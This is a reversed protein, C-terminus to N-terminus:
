RSRRAQDEVRDADWKLKAGGDAMKKIDSLSTEGRLWLVVLDMTFNVWSRFPHMIQEVAADMDDPHLNEHASGYQEMAWAAQKLGRHVEDAFWVAFDQAESAPVAQAVKAQGRLLRMQPQWEEWGPHASIFWALTGVIKEFSAETKLRVREKEVRAREQERELEARAREDDRDRAASKRELRALVIAVISSVLVASVPVVVDAVLPWVSPDCM